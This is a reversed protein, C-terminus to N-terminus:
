VWTDWCRRLPRRFSRKSPHLKCIGARAATWIMESIFEQQRGYQPESLLCWVTWRRLIWQSMCGMFLDRNPCPDLYQNKGSMAKFSCEAYIANQAPVGRCGDLTEVDADEGGGGGGGAGSIVVSITLAITSSVTSCCLCSFLYPERGRWGGIGEESVRRLLGYKIYKKSSM